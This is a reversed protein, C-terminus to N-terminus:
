LIQGEGKEQLDEFSQRAGLRLQLRAVLRAKKVPYDHVLIEVCGHLTLGTCYTVEKRTSDPISYTNMSVNALEVHSTGM